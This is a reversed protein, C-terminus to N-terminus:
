YWIDDSAVAEAPLAEALGRQLNRFQNTKCSLITLRIPSGKDM